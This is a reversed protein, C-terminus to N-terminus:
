RKLTGGSIERNGYIARFYFEAANGGRIEGEVGEHPSFQLYIVKECGMQWMKERVKNKTPSPENLVTKIAACIERTIKGFDEQVFGTFRQNNM